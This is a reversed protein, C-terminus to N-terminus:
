RYQKTDDMLINIDNYKRNIIDDVLFNTDIYLRLVVIKDM